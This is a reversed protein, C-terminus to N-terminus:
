TWFKRLIPRFGFVAAVYIGEPKLSNKCKSFSSRAVADFFSTMIRVKKQSIKRQM